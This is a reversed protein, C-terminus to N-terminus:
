KNEKKEAMEKRYRCNEYKTCCDCEGEVYGADVLPKWHSFSSTWDSCGDNYGKM